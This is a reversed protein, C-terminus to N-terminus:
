DNTPVRLKKTPSTTRAIALVEEIQERLAHRQEESPRLTMWSEFTRRCRELRAGLERAGASKPMRGVHEAAETLLKEIPTADEAM